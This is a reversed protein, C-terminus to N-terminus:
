NVIKRRDKDEIVLRVDESDPADVYVPIRRTGTPTEVLVLWQRENEALGLFYTEDNIQFDLNTGGFFVPGRIKCGIKVSGTRIRTYGRQDTAWPTLDMAESLVVLGLASLQSLDRVVSPIIRLPAGAESV